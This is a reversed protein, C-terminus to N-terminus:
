ALEVRFAVLRGSLRGVTGADLERGRDDRTVDLCLAEFRAGRACVAAALCVPLTGMVLDGPQVENPNLHEVWCDAEIGTEKAWAKAGPHRSVFWRKM